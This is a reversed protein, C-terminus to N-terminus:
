ICSSIMRMWTPRRQNKKVNSDSSVVAGALGYIIKPDLFLYIASFVSLSSFLLGSKNWLDMSNTKKDLYVAVCVPAILVIEMVSYVTIWRMWSKNDNLFSSGYSTYARLLLSFKATVYALFLVTSLYLHFKVPLFFGEVMLLSLDQNRSLEELLLLKEEKGMFIQGGMDILYIILPIFHYFDRISIGKKKVIERVYFFIFPM